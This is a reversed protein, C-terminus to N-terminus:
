QSVGCAEVTQMSSDEERVKCRRGHRWKIYQVKFDIGGKGVKQLGHDAIGGGEKGRDQV